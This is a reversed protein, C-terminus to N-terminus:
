GEDQNRWIKQMAYYAPKLREHFTVDNVWGEMEIKELHTRRTENGTCVGVYMKDINIAEIGYNGDYYDDHIQLKSPDSFNLLQWPIRIEICDDKRYFDSLSNYNQIEPNAIGYILRGTPFVEAEAVKKGNILQTMQLILNVDVFLPSDKDPVNEKVYTDFGYVEKSYNARLVEYREQVQIKSNEKGNIVIVFDIARDFLLGYNECYSSGSKQTTDIPIYLTENDFDLNDKKVLFYVYAEDYKMSLSMNNNKTVLDKETWESVDGDIYCVTEEEGPDFSLVGFYQENTQVDSWYPTRM